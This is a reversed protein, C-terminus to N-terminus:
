PFSYSHYITIACAQALDVEPAAEPQDPKSSNTESSAAMTKPNPPKLSTRTEQFALCSLHSSRKPTSIFITSIGQKRRRWSFSCPQATIASYLEISRLPYMSSPQRQVPLSVHHPGRTLNLYRKGTAYPYLRTCTGSRYTGRQVRLQLGPWTKYSLEMLLSSFLCVWPFGGTQNREERKKNTKEM